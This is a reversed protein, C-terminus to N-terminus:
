FDRLSSFLRSKEEERSLGLLMRTTASSKADGTSKLTTNTVM